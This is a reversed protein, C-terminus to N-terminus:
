LPASHHPRKENWPRYCGWDFVGGGVNKSFAGGGYTDRCWATLDVGGKQINSGTDYCYWDNAGNGNHRAEMNPTNYQEICALKVDIGSIYTDRASINGAAPAPIAISAAPSLLLVLGVVVSSIKSPALM